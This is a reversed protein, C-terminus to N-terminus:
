SPATQYRFVQPPYFLLQVFRSYRYTILPTFM